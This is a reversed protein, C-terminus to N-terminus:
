FDSRKAESGSPSRREKRPSSFAFVRPRLWQRPVWWRWLCFFATSLNDRLLPAYGRLLPRAIEFSDLSSSSSRPFLIKKPAM